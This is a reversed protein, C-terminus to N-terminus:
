NLYLYLVTSTILLQFAVLFLARFPTAIRFDSSVSEQYRCTFWILGCGLIGWLTWVALALWHAHTVDVFFLPIVAFFAIQLLLRPLQIIAERRLDRPDEDPPDTSSDTYATHPGLESVEGNGM